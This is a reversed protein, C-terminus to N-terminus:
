LKEDIKSMKLISQEGWVDSSLKNKSKCLCVSTDLKFNPRLEGMSLGSM